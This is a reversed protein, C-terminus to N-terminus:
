HVSQPRLRPPRGVGRSTLLDVHQRVNATVKEAEGKLAGLDVEVDFHGSNCVIAGDKM